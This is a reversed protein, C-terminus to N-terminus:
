WGIESTGFSSPTTTQMTYCIINLYFDQVPAVAWCFYKKGNLDMNEDVEVALVPARIAVESTQVDRLVVTSSEIRIKNV